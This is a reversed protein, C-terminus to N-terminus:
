EGSRTGFAEYRRWCCFDSIRPVIGFKFDPVTFVGYTDLVRKCMICAVITPFRAAYQTRRKPKGLVPSITKEGEVTM